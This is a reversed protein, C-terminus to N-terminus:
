QCGLRSVPKSTRGDWPRKYKRSGDRETTCMNERRCDDSIFASRVLRDLEVKTQGFGVAPNKCVNSATRALALCKHNGTAKKVKSAHDEM